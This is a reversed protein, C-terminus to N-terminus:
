AADGFRDKFYDGGGNNWFDIMQKAGRINSIWQIDSKSLWFWEGRTRQPAFLNHLSNELARAQGKSECKILHYINLRHGSAHEVKSKRLLPHMSIGIKAKQMRDSHMKSLMLYVFYSHNKIDIVPHVLDLM